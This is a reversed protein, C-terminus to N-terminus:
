QLRQTRQSESTLRIKKMLIKKFKSIILQYYRYFLIDFLSM